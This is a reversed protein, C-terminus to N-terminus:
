WLIRVPYEAMRRDATVLVLDAAIAHAVLMRDAPDRHIDPLTEALEWLSAPFDLLAFGM